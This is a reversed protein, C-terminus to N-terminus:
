SSSPKSKKSGSICAWDDMMSVNIDDLFESYRKMVSPVQESLIGSIGIIAGPKGYSVIRDALDLLPHLLINAVVVDYKNREGIIKRNYLDRSDIDKPPFESDFDPGNKSPFLSLQLKEPDINNLAANYRASTIAQPEIDVGVSLEAGFKLAAIALVGSGTGYDLFYEGGKILRRLLLLCLKTTPHEGTGFALGPNLIINTAQLDPPKRWEPVIWLGETIEVPHFSEQTLTIWDTHDHMEIKYNPMETLGVSDAALSICDKVDQDISFISSIWIEEDPDYIDQEDITTSSAGFCMLSESLVDSVHRPCCIRVSLYPATLSDDAIATCNSLPPTTSYNVAASINRRPLQKQQASKTSRFYASRSPPPLRHIHRRFSSFTTASNCLTLHKFFHNRLSSLALTM